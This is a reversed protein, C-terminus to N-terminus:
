TKKASFLGAIQHANEVLKDNAFGKDEANKWRYM